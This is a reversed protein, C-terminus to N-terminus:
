SMWLLLRNKVEWKGAEKWLLYLEGSGCLVGCKSIVLVVAETRSPDYGPNSFELFGAAGPHKEQFIKWKPGDTKPPNELENELIIQLSDSDNFRLLELFCSKRTQEDFNDLTKQSPSPLIQPFRFWGDSSDNRPTDPAFTKGYIFVTENRLAGKSDDATKRNDTLVSTYVDYDEAMLECQHQPQTDSPREQAAVVCWTLFPLLLVTAVLRAM